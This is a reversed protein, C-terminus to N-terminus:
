ILSCSKSYWNQRQSEGVSIRVARSSRSPWRRLFTRSIKTRQTWSHTHGQCGWQRSM